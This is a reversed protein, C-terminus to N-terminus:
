KVYYGNIEDYVVKMTPNAEDHKQRATKEDANNKVASSKKTITSEFEEKSIFGDRNKDIVSFEVIDSGDIKNFEEKNIMGDGDLDYRNFISLVTSRYDDINIRNVSDSMKADVGVVGIHPVNQRYTSLVSAEYDQRSINGLNKSDMRGYPDTQAFVVKAMLLVFLFLLSRYMLMLGDGERFDRKQIM